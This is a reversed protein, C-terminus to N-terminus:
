IVRKNPTTFSYQEPLAVPFSVTDCSSMQAWQRLTHWAEWSKPRSFCFASFPLQFDHTSRCVCVCVCACVCDGPPPLPLPISGAAACLRVMQQKPGPGSLLHSFSAPWSHKFLPFSVIVTLNRNNFKQSFYSQYIVSLLLWRRSCYRSDRTEWGKLVIAINTGTFPVYAHFCRPLCAALM